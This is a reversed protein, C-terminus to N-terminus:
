ESEKNRRKLQELLKNRIDTMVSMMDPAAYDPYTWPLAHFGGKEYVLTLDAWVGQNLYIRHTFNKGTALVLREASVYGPDINVKRRGEIAFEAEVANTRVKIEVLDAPDVLTEASFVRKVLPGGMEARYYDTQDFAMVMSAYDLRGVLEEFRLAARALDERDRSFIAALPKVPPPPVLRSM